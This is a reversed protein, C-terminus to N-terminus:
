RKKSNKPANGSGYVIENIAGLQGTVLLWFGKLTTLPPWFVAVGLETFSQSHSIPSFM